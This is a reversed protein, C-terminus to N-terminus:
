TIGSLSNGLPAAILATDAAASEPQGAKPDVQLRLAPSFPQTRLYAESLVKDVAQMWSAYREGYTSETIPNQPGGEMDDPAIALMPETCPFRPPKKLLRLAPTLVRAQM